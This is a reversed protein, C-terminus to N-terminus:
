SATTFIRGLLMMCGRQAAITAYTRGSLTTKFAFDRAMCFPFLVDSVCLAM